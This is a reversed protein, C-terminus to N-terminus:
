GQEYAEGGRGEANGSQHIDVQMLVEKRKWMEDPPASKSIMGVFLFGRLSCGSLVSFENQGVHVWSKGHCSLGVPLIPLSAVLETTDVRCLTYTHSVLAATPSSPQSVEKGGQGWWGANCETIPSSRCVRCQNKCHFNTWSKYRPTEGNQVQDRPRTSFRLNEGVSHM